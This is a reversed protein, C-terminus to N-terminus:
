PLASLKSSAREKLHKDEVIRAAADAYAQKAKTLDGASEYCSALKFLAEEHNADMTLVQIFQDIAENWKEADKLASGYTYKYEVNNPELSAAKELVEVADETRELRRLTAGLRHHYKAKEPELDVARTLPTVAEVWRERGCLLKGYDYFAEADEDEYELGKAYLELAHNPNDDREIEALELYAEGLTPNLTIARNLHERATKLDDNKEAIKGLRYFARSDGPDLTVVRSFYEAAIRLNDNRYYDEGVGYLAEGNDPAITLAERYHYVADNYRGKKEAADAKELHDMLVEHPQSGSCALFLTALLIMPMFRRVKPQLVFM